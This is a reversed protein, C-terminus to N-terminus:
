GTEQRLDVIAEGSTADVVTRADSSLHRAPARTRVSRLADRDMGEIGRLALSRAAAGVSGVPDHASALLLVSQNTWEIDSEGGLPSMPRDTKSNMLDPTGRERLPSSAVSCM